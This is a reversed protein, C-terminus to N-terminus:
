TFQGNVRNCPSDQREADSLLKHDDDDGDDRECRVVDPRRGDDSNRNSRSFVTGRPAAVAADNIRDIASNLRRELQRRNEKERKLQKRLM